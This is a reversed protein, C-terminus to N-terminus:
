KNREDVLPYVQPKPQRSFINEYKFTQNITLRQQTSDIMLFQQKLFINVYLLKNLNNKM